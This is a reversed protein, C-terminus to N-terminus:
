SVKEKSFQETFATEKEPDALENEYEIKYYYDIFADLEDVVHKTKKLRRRFEKPTEGPIDREKYQVKILQYITEAAKKKPAKKKPAKKTEVRNKKRGGCLMLTLIILPLIYIAAKSAVARIKRPDILRSKGNKLDDFSGSGLAAFESINFENNATNLQPLRQAAPTPDVTIGQGNYKVDVWAHYSATSFLYLNKQPDHLKGIYGVTMRCPIDLSRLYFLMASAFLTCHGKKKKFLFDNMTQNGVADKWLEYTFNDKFYSLLIAIREGDSTAYETLDKAQTKVKDIFPHQPLETYM